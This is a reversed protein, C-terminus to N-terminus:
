QEYSSEDPISPEEARLPGLRNVAVARHRPAFQAPCPLHHRRQHPYLLLSGSRRAATRTTSGAAASQRRPWSRSPARACAWRCPRHGSSRAKHRRAGAATGHAMSVRRSAACATETHPPCLGLGSVPRLRRATERRVRRARRDQV